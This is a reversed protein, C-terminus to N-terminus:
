CEVSTIGGELDTQSFYIWTYGPIINHQSWDLLLLSTLHFSGKVFAVARKMLRLMGLLTAGNKCDEYDEAREAVLWLFPVPMHGKPWSLGALSICVECIIGHDSIMNDCHAFIEGCYIHWTTCIIICAFGVDIHLIAAGCDVEGSVEVIVSMRRKFAVTM